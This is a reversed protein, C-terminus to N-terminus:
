KKYLRFELAVRTIDTEDNSALGHILYSSFMLVEGYTVNTRILDSSDNWDKIINVRYKNNELIGGDKTRNIKNESILHSSPVIPLSTKKTVGSIPVWFNLFKPFYSIGNITNGDYAAYMDKHPPNFDTSGPRNIRLIIHATKNIQPNIDTLSFGLIKEFKPIMELIPFNFDDSFLDRTKTVVKLHTENDKVFNHYKELTFNDLQQNLTTEVINKITETIGIYLNKFETNTLFNFIGYGKNYWKQEFTVDTTENSLVEDLGFTFKNEESIKTVKLVGDIKYNLDIM